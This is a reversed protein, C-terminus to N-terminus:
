EEIVESIKGRVAKVENTAKNVIVLEEPTERKVLFDEFDLGAKVIRKKQAYTPKKLNKM